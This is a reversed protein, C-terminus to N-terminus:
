DSCSVDRGSFFYSIQPIFLLPVCLEQDHRTSVEVFNTFKPDRNVVLRHVEYEVRHKESDELTVYYKALRTKGQWRKRPFRRPIRLLQAGGKQFAFPEATRRSLRRSSLGVRKSRGGVPIGWM